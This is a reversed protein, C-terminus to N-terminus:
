QMTFKDSETAPYTNSETGKCQFKPIETLEEIREVATDKGEDNLLKLLDCIREKAQEFIPDNNNENGEDSFTIDKDYTHPHNEIYLALEESMNEILLTPLVNLVKAIKFLTELRPERVGREYQQITITALGAKHALDKQTLHAKKRFKRINEGVTM